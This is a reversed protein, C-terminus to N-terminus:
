LLTRKLIFKIMEDTFYVDDTRAIRRCLISTMCWEQDVLRLLVRSWSTPRDNQLWFHKVGYNSAFPAYGIKWYKYNFIEVIQSGEPMFLILMSQFGHTTVLMDTDYMQKYLWCPDTLENHYIIEVTWSSCRKKSNVNDVQKCEEEQKQLEKTIVEQVSELNLFRRDIDRQYMILRKRTSESEKQKGGFDVDSSNCFRKIKDKIEKRDIADKFWESRNVSEKGVEGLYKGCICQCNSAHVSFQFHNQPMMDLKSPPFYTHMPGHTAFSILQRVRSGGGLNHELSSLSRPHLLVLKGGSGSMFSLSLFYIGMKSIFNFMKYESAVVFVTASSVNKTYHNFRRAQSLYYEAMHFWHNGKFTGGAKAKLPSSLKIIFQNSDNNSSRNNNKSCQLRCENTVHTDTCHGSKELGQGNQSSPLLYNHEWINHKGVNKKYDHVLIYMYFGVACAVVAVLVSWM